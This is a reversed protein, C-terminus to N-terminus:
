QTIESMRDFEVFHRNGYKEQHTEAFEVAENSTDVTKNFECSICSLAYMVRNNPLLPNITVGWIIQHLQRFPTSCRDLSPCDDSIRHSLFSVFLAALKPGGCNKRM